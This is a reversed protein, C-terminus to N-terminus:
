LTLALGLGLVFMGAEERSYKRCIACQIFLKLTSKYHSIPTHALRSLTEIANQWTSACLAQLQPLPQQILPLRPAILSPLSPRYAQM